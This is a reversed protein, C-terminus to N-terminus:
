SARDRHDALRAIRRAVVELVANDGGENAAHVLGYTPNAEGSTASGASRRSCTGVAAGRMGRLCAHGGPGSRRRERPVGSDLGPRNGTALVPSERRDQRSGSLRGTSLRIARIDRRHDGRRRHRRRPLLGEFGGPSCILLFRARDGSPNSFTHPLDGSVHAVAGPALEASEEGVRIELRGDVVLFTEDFGPHVHLPPGPFNAPASYECVFQSASAVKIVLRNGRAEIVEGDGPALLAHGNHTSNM